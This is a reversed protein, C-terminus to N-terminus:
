WPRGAASNKREVAQRTRARRMRTAERTPYKSWRSQAHFKSRELSVCGRGHGRGLGSSIRMFGDHRRKSRQKIAIDAEADSMERAALGFSLSISRRRFCSPLLT